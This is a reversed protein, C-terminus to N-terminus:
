DFGPAFLAAVREPNRIGVAIMAAETDRVLEASQTGGLLQGRRRRAVQGYLHMDVATFATEARVLLELAVDRQGARAAIGADLLTALPDSWPMHERHIRRADRRALALHKRDSEAAMLAARARVHWMNIRNMQVTLLLARRMLGWSAEVRALAGRGDGIYLDIQAQAYVNYSHQLDFEDRWEARAEDAHRRAEDPEDLALWAFNTLAGRLGSAKFRDGKAKADQLHEVTRRCVGAIDGMWYLASVAVIQLQALEWWMGACREQLVHNAGDALELTRRWNGNLYAIGSASGLAYGELLPDPPLSARLEESLDVLRRVTPNNESGGKGAAVLLAEHAFGRCLRHPEGANMALRLARTHLEFGRMPDSFALAFCFSQYLDVLKLRKADRSRRSQAQYGRLWLRLRQYALSLLVHFRTRPLYLGLDRCLAAITDLGADTNGCRILQDAARQRLRMNEDGVLGSATLLYEEAAEAGHGANALAEALKRRIALEATREHAVLGLGLRYFHVARDFALLESARDAARIAHPAAAVPEDCGILHVALLEPDADTSGEMARAIRQHIARRSSADLPALVAARIRDHYTLLTPRAATGETRILHETRLQALVSPGHVTDATDLALRQSIPYGATAVIELLRRADDSLRLIRAHLVEDLSTREIPASGVAQLHHVLEQVFFPTGQAERAIEDANRELDPDDELWARALDRADDSSLADLAVESRADDAYSTRIHAVAASDTESRHCVVLLAGPPDPPGLIDNLLGASAVDSWQFDDIILAVPYRESIATLLERLAALGRRRQEQVDRLKQEGGSDSGSVVRRLVPFVRGLSMIDRPLLALLEVRELALLQETLADVLSDLTKLPVSEREYCRGRVIMAGAARARQTFQEVLTTKGIGSPGHVFVARHGTRSAALAEQLSALEEVRGVFRRQDLPLAIRPRSSRALGLRELVLEGSPRKAPDRELLAMALDSLAPDATPALARPPRLDDAREHDLQAARTRKPQVGALAEYLVAGVSYWDAAPGPTDYTFVEPAVYGPTGLVYGAPVSSSVGGLVAVLGFDLVVVRGSPTVLVNSPKIDRHLKGSEHLFQVADALQQFTALCVDSAAPAAVVTEPQVADDAAAGGRLPGGESGARETDDTQAKRLDPRLYTMLGSGDVHEMTFVWREDVILLEYLPVLNPHSVDCLARFEQKFRFLSGPGPSRLVKLAVMADQDHDFVKYVEGM